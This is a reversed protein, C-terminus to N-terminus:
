SLDLFPQNHTPPKPMLVPPQSFMNMNMAMSMNPPLTLNMNDRVPPVEGMWFLNDKPQGAADMPVRMVNKPFYPFYPMNGWGPFPQAQPPKMFNHAQVQAQLQQAHIQAQAQAQVSPQVQAQPQAQTSEKFLLTNHYKQLKAVKIPPIEENFPTSIFEFDVETEQSELIPNVILAKRQSKACSVKELLVKKVISSGRLLLTCKRKNTKKQPSPKSNNKNKAPVSKPNKEERQKQKIENM